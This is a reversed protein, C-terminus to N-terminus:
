IEDDTLGCALLFRSKDFRENDQRFAKAMEKALQVVCHREDCDGGDLRAKFVGAILVYDKRSM